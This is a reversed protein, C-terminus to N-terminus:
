AIKQNNMRFKIITIFNFFYTSGRNDGQSLLVDVATKNLHSAHGSLLKSIYELLTFRDRIASASLTQKSAEPM